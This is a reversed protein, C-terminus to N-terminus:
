RSSVNPHCATNNKHKENECRGCRINTTPYAGDAGGGYPYDDVKQHKDTTYERFNVLDYTFKEKEQAKQLISTNLIGSFMEPFLTLIDIHM